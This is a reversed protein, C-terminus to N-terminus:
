KVPPPKLGPQTSPKRAAGKKTKRVLRSPTRSSASIRRSVGAPATGNRGIAAMDRASLAIPSSGEDPAAAAATTEIVARFFGPAETHLGRAFDDVQRQTLEAPRSPSSTVM